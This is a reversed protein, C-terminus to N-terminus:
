PLVFEANGPQHIGGGYCEPVAIRLRNKEVALIYSRQDSSGLDAFKRTCDASVGLNSPGKHYALLAKNGIAAHNQFTAIRRGNDRWVGIQFNIEGRREFLSGLTAAQLKLLLPFMVVELSNTLLDFVAIMPVDGPLVTGQANGVIGDDDFAASHGDGLDYCFYLCEDSKM